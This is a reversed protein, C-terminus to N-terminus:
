AATRGDADASLRDDMRVLRELRSDLAAWRKGNDSGGSGSSGSSKSNSVTTASM